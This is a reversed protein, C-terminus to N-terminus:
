NHSNHMELFPACNKFRVRTNAGDTATIHGTVLIYADSYDCLNSKIVKTEFKVTTSDENGEGYDTNNQDNIVYWKRTAFKSSENNADGLLNVIKQTEMKIRLWFWVVTAANQSFEFTTEESKEIIFFMTAGENRELKGIFNIQQKLDPNELEIQKSLDIAILKYHKSFYEYDLLNGTTYDNNRGMEIIQEYTEKDNKIPMDFFSKGDILGNFNKIQVNPVYYKSFSTRDNENEFSLVFLRNVKTFTPDILYNLNNNKTQNTMESRDKNWKITRKFGSKLQELFNNDDETSLTVVPVYLKTDTIQFTANTPSTDRRTNTIVRREMSTIVCERSWTLILSVECNILSM